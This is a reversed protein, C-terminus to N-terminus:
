FCSGFRKIKRKNYGYHNNQPRANEPLAGSVIGPILVEGQKFKDPSLVIESKKFQKTLIIGGWGQKGAM